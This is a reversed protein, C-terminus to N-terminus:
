RRDVLVWLVALAPILALNKALGGLPDLWQAPLLMGFALTYAIVSALMLSVCLRAHRGSLLWLALILDLAAAGRALAVPAADALPSHAALAEITAASTAWGAWASISWLAVVGFKLLPALFYLRAHWRDQVQSPHAALADAVSRPAFGFAERLRPLMDGTAINGRRLMRWITAGMPGAGFIEGLAVQLNALAMPVHLARDGPIRLWRRWASQYERLTLIEPGGVDFCGRADGAAALAVLVGLDEASIPQIPWRGDGPVAHAFPLAALARLMSTGGYSGSASYVVSPRLVVAALPLALLAEDFRYKSAVFEGDEPRGLVSIQVFRGVGAAVCARAVALPAQHHIAEFRQGRTERLIGAANIVVDVGAVADRWHEPATMTALDCFREDERLARGRTRVGRLVRWGRERLAAILFGAIFGDAGLVLVTSAGPPVPRPM